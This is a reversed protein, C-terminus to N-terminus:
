ILFIEQIHNKSLNCATNQDFGHLARTIYRTVILEIVSVRHPSHLTKTIALLAFLKQKHIM